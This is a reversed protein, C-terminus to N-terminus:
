EMFRTLIIVKDMLVKVWKGQHMENNRDGLRRALAIIEAIVLEALNLFIQFHILLQIYKSFHSVLM